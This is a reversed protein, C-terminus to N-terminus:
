SKKFRSRVFGSLGALGTGLLILSNPEPTPSSPPTISYNINDLLAFAPDQAGANPDSALFLLIGNNGGAGINFTLSESEWGSWTQSLICPATKEGTGGFSAACTAASTIIDPSGLSSGKAADLPTSGITPAITGLTVALLADFNGQCFTCGDTNMLQQSGAFNFTLTVVSGATLTGLNATLAGTEFDADMAIFPTGKSGTVTPADMILGTQAGTVADGNSDFVFNYGGSANGFNALNSPNNSNLQFSTSGPSIAISTAHAATTGLVTLALTLIASSRTFLRM